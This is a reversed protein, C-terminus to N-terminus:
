RAEMLTEINVELAEAVKILVGLTPNQRANELGSLYARDVGSAEALQQQSWGRTRRAAQVQGGVRRLLAELPHAEAPTGALERALRRAERASTAVGDAGLDGGAPGGTLVPVGPLRGRLLGVTEHAAAVSSELVVSLAVLDPALAGAHAAFEVPPVNTLVHVDWGDLALLDAVMRAGMEHQEPQVTGVLVTRPNGAHRPFRERLADMHRRVLDTALHEQTITIHGRAWREGVAEQAPSLLELYVAEIGLGGEIANNIVASVEQADATVLANILRPLLRYSPIAM